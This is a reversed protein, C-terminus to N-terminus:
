GVSGPPSSFLHPHAHVIGPLAMVNDIVMHGFLALLHLM